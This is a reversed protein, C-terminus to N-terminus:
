IVPKVCRVQVKHDKAPDVGNKFYNQGNDLEPIDSTAGTGGDSVMSWVSDGLLIAWQAYNTRNTYGKVDIRGSKYFSVWEGGEARFSTYMNAQINLNPRPSGWSVGNSTSWRTSQFRDSALRTNGGLALIEAGTPLRWGGPIQRCPDKSVEYNAVNQPTRSTINADWPTLSNYLWYDNEASTTATYPSKRISYKGTTPNYTLNGRAWILNGFKAGDTNLINLAPAYSVGAQPIISSKASIVFDRNTITPYTGTPYTFIDRLRVSNVRITIDSLPTTFDATYMNAVRASDANISVFPLSSVSQSAINSISNNVLNLTGSKFYSQSSPALQVNFNELVAPFENGKVTIAVRALRHKFRINVRAEPVNTTNDLPFFIDTTSNAYLLDKDVPTQISVNNTGIADTIDATTNYSYAVWKYTRGKFINFATTNYTAGRILDKHAVYVMNNNVVEFLIFRYRINTGLNSVASKEINSYKSNLKDKISTSESYSVKDFSTSYRIGSEELDYIEEEANSANAVDMKSNASLDLQEEIGDLSIVFDVKNPDGIEPNTSTDDSKKCGGLVLLSSILFLNILNKGQILYKIKTWNTRM